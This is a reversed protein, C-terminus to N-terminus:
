LGLGQLIQSTGGAAGGIEFLKEAAGGGATFVKGAGEKIDRTQSPGLGAVPAIIDVVDLLQKGSEIGKGITGGLEKAVSGFAGIGASLSPAGFIRQGAKITSSGIDKAAKVASSGIKGLGRSTHTGAAQGTVLDAIFGGAIDGLGSFFSM